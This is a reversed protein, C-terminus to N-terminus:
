DRVFDGTKPDKHWGKPASRPAQRNQSTPKEVSPTPKSEDGPYFWKPTQELASKGALEERLRRTENRFERVEDTSMLDSKALGKKHRLNNM